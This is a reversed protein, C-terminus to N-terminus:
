KNELPTWDKEAEDLPVRVYGTQASWATIKCIPRDLEQFAEIKTITLIDNDKTEVLSGVPFTRAFELIKRTESSSPYM